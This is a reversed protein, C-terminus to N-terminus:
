NKEELREFIFDIINSLDILEERMAERDSNRYALIFEAFEEILHGVYEEITYQHHNGYRPSVRDLKERKLRELKKSM